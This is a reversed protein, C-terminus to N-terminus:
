PPLIIDIVAKGFRRAPGTRAKTKRITSRNQQWNCLNFTITRPRMGKDGFM